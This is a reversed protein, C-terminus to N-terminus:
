RGSLAHLQTKLPRGQHRLYDRANRWDPCRTEVEDWFARSHNPHILHCLEHVLVYEFAFPPGLILALDLTL